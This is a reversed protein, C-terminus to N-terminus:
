TEVKFIVRKIVSIWTMRPVLIKKAWQELELGTAKPSPRDGKLSGKDIEDYMEKLCQAMAPGVGYKMLTKRFEETSVPKFLIKRGLVRSLISAVELCSLADHFQVDVGQQDIWTSDLLWRAATQGIDQASEFAIKYHPEVPLSFTGTFKLQPIWWLASEMFLGCRVHRTALELDDFRKEM